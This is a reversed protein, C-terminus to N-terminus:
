QSLPCSNSCRQSVTYSLSAKHATTWPTAFLQVRHQKAILCCPPTLLSGVPQKKSGSAAPATAAFIDQKFKKDPRYDIDIAQPLGLLRTPIM